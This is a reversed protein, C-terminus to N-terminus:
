MLIGVNPDSERATSQHFALFIEQIMAVREM